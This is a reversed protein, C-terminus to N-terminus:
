PATPLAILMSLVRRYLSRAWRPVRQWIQVASRFVRVRTSIPTRILRIRGTKRIREITFLAAEPGTPVPLGAQPGSPPPGDFSPEAPAKSPHTPPSNVVRYVSFTGGTITGGSDLRSLIAPTLQPDFCANQGPAAILLIVTNSPEGNASVQLTAYCDADIDNPLAFNLVWLGPYGAVAGTYAPTIVRTGVTVKFNGAATQDVGASGGTDNAIDAGGGTGWLSLTDGGHAPTNVFNGAGGAGSATYRTLSFGQNVSADTSQVVGTGIGNATAIGFHRAVVTVNQANSTQGNYIVRVAYTGPATSSPLVGVVAGSFTYYLLGNIPAGGAINTFTVSTNSLIAPYNPATAFVIAAPGLNKGYIVFVVNPALTTQASSVNAVGNTDISPQAALISAFALSLFLTLFPTWPKM